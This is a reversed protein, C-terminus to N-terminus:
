EAKKINKQFSTVAQIFSDLKPFVEGQFNEKESDPLAAHINKYILNVTKVLDDINSTKDLLANNTNMVRKMLMPVLARVTPDSNELKNKLTHRTIVILNCDEVAEVTATRPADFILAMEGVIQGVGAKDLTIRKGGKETYISVMGSQILFACTGIEGEKIVFGGKPVFRRELIVNEKKGGSSSTAM